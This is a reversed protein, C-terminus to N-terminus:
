TPTLRFISSRSSRERSRFIALSMSALFGPPTMTRVTPSSSVFFAKLCSSLESRPEHSFTWAATSAASAGARTCSSAFSVLPIM